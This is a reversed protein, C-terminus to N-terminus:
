PKSLFDASKAALEFGSSIFSEFETIAGEITVLAHTPCNDRFDIITELSPKVIEAGDPSVIKTIYAEMMIASFYEDRKSDAEPIGISNFKRPYKSDIENILDRKIRAPIAKLHFEYRYQKLSDVIDDFKKQLKKYEDSDSIGINNLQNNVLNVEYALAENFYVDVVKEPYDQGSLVDALNFTKADLESM